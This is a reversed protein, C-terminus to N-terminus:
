FGPFTSPNLALILRCVRAHRMQTVPLRTARNPRVTCACCCARVKVELHPCRPIQVVVLLVHVRHLIDLTRLSVVMWVPNVPRSGFAVPPMLVTTAMCVSPNSQTPIRGLYPNASLTYTLSLNHPLLFQCEQHIHNDFTAVVVIPYLM